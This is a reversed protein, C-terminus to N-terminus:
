DKIFRTAHIFQEEIFDIELKEQLVDYVYDLFWVWIGEEEDSENINCRIVSSSHDFLPSFIEPDVKLNEKGVTMTEILSKSDYLPSNLFDDVQQNLENTWDQSVFDLLLPNLTVLYDSGTINSIVIIYENKELASNDTNFFSIKQNAKTLERLVRKQNNTIHIFAEKFQIVLNKNAFDKEVAEIREREIRLQEEKRKNILTDIKGYAISIIEGILSGTSIGVLILIFSKQNNPISTISVLKPEVFIWVTTLSVAVCLYKVCAKISTLAALIKVITGASENM